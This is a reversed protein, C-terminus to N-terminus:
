YRLEQLLPPAVTREWVADLTDAPGAFAPPLVARVAVRRVDALAAAEAGSADQLALAWGALGGGVVATAGGSVRRVDYLTDGAEVRPRWVYTVSAEAMTAPDSVVTFSVSTDTRGELAAVNALDTGVVAAISATQGALARHRSIAHAEDQRRLGVSALLVVLLGTVVTALLSDSISPM